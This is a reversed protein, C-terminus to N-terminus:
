FARAVDARRSFDSQRDCSAPAILVNPLAADSDWASSSFGTLARKQARHRSSRTLADEASEQELLPRFGSLAAGKTLDSM